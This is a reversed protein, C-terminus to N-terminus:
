LALSNLTSAWSGALALGALCNALRRLFDKAATLGHIRNVMSGCEKRLEHLPKQSTIGKSRLWSLLRKFVRHARYNQFAARKSPLNPSEIVFNSRARAAYGHMISMLEPDLSVDGISHETKVDFHETPEIRIVNENWRFASWELRDIEIRRLGAGLALVFALFAPADNQALEEHADRTLKEVDIMSRYRMSQRPEFKVKDFPLPSPLRIRSLHKTVDPSFLSKACRLISNVSVKAARSRIPDDGTRALFTRKWQQIVDPTVAALKIAHIREIWRQRGGGRYDYKDRGGDINFADAVIKRFAGAYGKLTRPKLDAKVKLEDLFEGVTSGDRPLAVSQPRFERLAKDWGKVVL